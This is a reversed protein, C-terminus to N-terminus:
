DKITLEPKRGDKADDSELYKKEIEAAIEPSVVTKNDDTIQLSQGGSIGMKMM